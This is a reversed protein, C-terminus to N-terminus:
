QKLTAVLVREIGALDHVAPEVKWSESEFITQVAAFQGAGLEVALFGDPKLLTGCQSAIQRYCDLGDDGGDLALRPEWDRIQPELTQIDARSIYPPNSLVCDFMGGFGERRLPSAWKATRGAVFEIRNAVHNLAANERALDLAGPSVDTAYVVSGPVAHAISVAICGSGTGLDAILAGSNNKLRAAALEVLIETEPRPILARRDCRFPLGFFERQRTLYALPQCSRLEMCLHLLEDHDRPALVRDPQLLHAHRVGCVHDLLLRAELRARSLSFGSDILLSVSKQYAESTTM